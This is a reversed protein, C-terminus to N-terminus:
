VLEVRGEVCAPVQLSEASECLVLLISGHNLYLGSQSLGQSECNNGWNIYLDAEIPLYM